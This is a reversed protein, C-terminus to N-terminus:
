SPNCISCQSSDQHEGTLKGDATLQFHCCAVFMDRIMERGRQVRSKIASISVGEEDALIKHKVGKLETLQLTSKYPEPLREIFPYICNHMDAKTEKDAVDIDESLESLKKEKRFYDMLVNRAITYVWSKLGASDRLTDSKQHIRLFVELLLDEAIFDDKTQKVLYGKLPQAFAKWISSTLENNM